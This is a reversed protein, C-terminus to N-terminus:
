YQLIFVYIFNHYETLCVTENKRHCMHISSGVIHLPLPCQVAITGGIHYLFMSRM